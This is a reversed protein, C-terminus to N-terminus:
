SSTGGPLIGGGGGAIIGGFGTTTQATTPQTSPQAGGGFAGFQKLIALNALQGGFGSLAQGTTNSAFTQPIGALQIQQGSVGQLIQAAQVQQQFKTQEAQQFVQRATLEKTRAIEGAGRAQLQAARGSRLLGTGALFSLQSRLAEEQAQGALNSLFEANARTERQERASFRGSLFPLFAGQIAERVPGGALLAQQRADQARKAQKKSANSSLIGGGVAAVGGIIAAAIVM